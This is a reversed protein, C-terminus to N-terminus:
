TCLLYLVETKFPFERIQPKDLEIEGHITKLSRPRTGNRHTKRKDTREYRRAQIQNEAELQMVENLFSATLKRMGEKRDILCDEALDSINM